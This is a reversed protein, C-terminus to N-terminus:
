DIEKTKRLLLYLRYLREPRNLDKMKMPVAWLEGKILHIKNKVKYEIKLKIKKHVFLHSSNQRNQNPRRM